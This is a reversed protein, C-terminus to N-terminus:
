DDNGEEIDHIFSILHHCETVIQSLVGQLHAEAEDYAFIPIDKAAGSFPDDAMELISQALDLAREKSM